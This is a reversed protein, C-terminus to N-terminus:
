IPLIPSDWGRTHPTRALPQSPLPLSLAKSAVTHLLSSGSLFPPGLNWCPTHPHPSCGTKPSVATGNSHLRPRHSIHTYTSASLPLMAVAAPWLAARETQPTRRRAAHEATLRHKM